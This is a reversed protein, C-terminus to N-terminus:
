PARDATRKGLAFVRFENRRQGPLPVTAAAYVRAHVTALGWYLPGFFQANELLPQGVQEIRGTVARRLAVLRTRLGTRSSRQDFRIAWLQGAMAYLSGQANWGSREVQTFRTSKWGDRHAEYVPWNVQTAQFHDVGVFLRGDIVAAGDTNIAERGRQAGQAVDNLALPPTVTPRWGGQRLCREQVRPGRAPNDSLADYILCPRGARTVGFIRQTGLPAAPDIDGAAPERWKRGIRGFVRHEIRVGAGTQSRQTEARIVYLRGGSRFTGAL